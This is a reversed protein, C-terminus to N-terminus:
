IRVTARATDPLASRLERRSKLGLKTFVHRLHWEVTRHSLFLRAGIEHNTHGEAALRAIQAEQMTLADNSADTQKRATEGTAHLERAAREAFPGAGMLTFAAHAARLQDRADRRRRDRRLWEGYLLQARAAEVKLRGNGLLSIAQRYLADADDGSSVLARCRAEIGRAWATGSAQTHECLADVARRALDLRDCRVAAEVLEPLATGYFAHPNHDFERQAWALADDHRGLGAHLTAAAEEAHRVLMGDGRQTAERISATILAQADAGRLASLRLRAHIMPADGTAALISDAETVLTEAQALDGARLHWSALTHLAIPLVSLAGAERAAQVQRTGLEFWADADWLEVALWVWAIDFMGDTETDRFERLARRLMPAGAVCGDVFRLAIGDLMLDEPSPAGAAPPADRIALAVDVLGSPSALHM